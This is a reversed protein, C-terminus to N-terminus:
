LFNHSWPRSPCRNRAKFEGTRAILSQWTLSGGPYIESRARPASHDTRSRRTPNQPLRHQAWAGKYFQCKKNISKIALQPALQYIERIITQGIRTYTLATLVMAWSLRHGRQTALLSIQLLGIVHCRAAVQIIIAPMITPPPIRIQKHSVQRPQLYAVAERILILAIAITIIAMPNLAMSLLQHRCHNMGLLLLVILASM